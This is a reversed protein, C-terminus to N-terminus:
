CQASRALGTRGPSDCWSTSHMWSNLLHISGNVVKVSAWTNSRTSGEFQTHIVGELDPYVLSDKGGQSHPLFQLVLILPMPGVIPMPCEFSVMWEEAFVVHLELWFVPTGFIKVWHTFVGSPLGPMCLHFGGGPNTPIVMNLGLVSVGSSLVPARGHVGGGPNTSIALVRLLLWVDWGRSTSSCARGQSTPDVTTILWTTWSTQQVIVTLM